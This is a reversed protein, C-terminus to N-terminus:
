AATATVYSGDRRRAIVHGDRGSPGVLAALDPDIARRRRSSLEDVSAGRVRWLRVDDESEATATTLLVTGDPATVPAGAVDGPLDTAIRRVGRYADTTGTTFSRKSVFALPDADTPAQVAVAWSGEGLDSALPQQRWSEGRDATLLYMADAYPAERTQPGGTGLVASRRRGHTLAVIWSHDGDEVEPVVVQTQHNPSVTAFAARPRMSTALREHAVLDWPDALVDIEHPRPCSAATRGVAEIAGTIFLERDDGVISTAVFGDPLEVPLAEGLTILGATAPVNARHVAPGEPTAVLAVVQGRWATLDLITASASAPGAGAAAPLAWNRPAAGVVAGAAVM